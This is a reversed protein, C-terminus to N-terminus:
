GAFPRTGKVIGLDGCEVEFQDVKKAGPFAKMNKKRNAM